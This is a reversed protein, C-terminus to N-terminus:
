HTPRCCLSNNMAESTSLFLTSEPKLTDSLTGCSCSRVVHRLSHLQAHADDAAAGGMVLARSEPPIEPCDADEATLEIVEVATVEAALHRRHLPAPLVDSGAFRVAYLHQLCNRAESRQAAIYTENSADQISLDVGLDIIAHLDMAVSGVADGGLDPSLHADTVEVSLQISEMSALSAILLSCAESSRVHQWAVEHVVSALQSCDATGLVGAVPSTDMPVFNQVTIQLAATSSVLAPVVIVELHLKKGEQHASNFAAVTFTHTSPACQGTSLAKLSCSECGWGNRRESSCAEKVLVVDADVVAIGPQAEVSIICLRDDVSCADGQVDHAPAAGCVESFAVPFPRGCVGWLQVTELLDTGTGSDAAAKLRASNAPAMSINAIINAPADPLQSPALVQRLSCPSTACAVPSSPCYTETSKCPSVISIVRVLSASAAPRGLDFVTFVVEFTTGVPANQTDIGCGALGKVRLEHGPCAYFLCDAPPCALIRHSIFGDEKDYAVPGDECVDYKGGGCYGYSRGRAVYKIAVDSSGWSLTPASNYTQALRQSGLCISSSSCVYDSCLHEGAPCAPHVVITREVVNSTHQVVRAAFFRITYNGLKNTDLACATVGRHSFRYNPKCAEIYVSLDGDVAHHATAGQV